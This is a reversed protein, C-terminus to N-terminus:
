PIYININFRKSKEERKGTNKEIEHTVKKKKDGKEKKEHRGRLPRWPSPRLPPPM